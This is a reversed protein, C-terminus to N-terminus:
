ARRVMPILPPCTGARIEGTAEFGHRRYLPVNCPNTSELYAPLGANIPAALTADLLAGGIGRGQRDPRVGLFPLYWHPEAPHARGMQAFLDFAAPRQEVAVTREFLAGIAAEDLPADPPLWLIAGSHDATHFATHQDFAAGALAHILAAFSPRYRAEDPWFWRVVPDREFADVLLHTVAARDAPGSRRIGLQPGVTCPHAAAIM